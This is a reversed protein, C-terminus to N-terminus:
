EAAKRPRGVRGRMERDAKLVDQERYRGLTPKLLGASEWNRITRETRKVREAAQARTLWSM